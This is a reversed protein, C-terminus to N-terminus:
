PSREVPLQTFGCNVLYAYIGDYVSPPRTEDLDSGHPIFIVMGQRARTLLVRYSNAIFTKRSADNVTQWRTGKFQLTQWQDDIRRLNGDWCVCTWDLELGQVDFETAADELADSSRVDQSAALFWKAPEIKAKVFVGHPKLRSANSSALLGVRENGRKTRRLWARAADLDRTVHLPFSGLHSSIQRAATADGAILEGVFDSLREARFSRISTALHLEPAPVEDALAIDHSLTESIHAQWHPFSRQLARLWEEIGAEGTNIEQGGGVLCIIACWDEHRDMVSLLFEPESMSFGLQGKKQQMFKSTQEVDWARQAEDFIAVKEIPARDSSLADDRFHHINQIFAAARRDELTKSTSQGSARAATVADLALAERLVEVLPGNGSLFVAHEESHARQRATALNLGALTKGSGPVGTVFCIIKQRDRKATEIAEAIYDATVTLNEAGAESRSIEEVAHGRYLAQAAEVITPTPRYRGAEWILADLRESRGWVRCVHNIAPALGEANSLLPGALGDEDWHLPMKSPESAETAVLIPVIPAQHSTEHFHKLDLGYGYVQETSARDFQRAGLKYEVVFIIGELIVILDARRGMRPILFEIFFHAPPLDDAISRLHKLQYEWAARQAPELAFPLKATLRGLLEANTTAPLEETHISVYARNANTQNM